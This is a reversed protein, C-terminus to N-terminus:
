QVEVVSNLSGLGNPTWDMCDPDVCWRDDIIFKYEYKGPTLLVSTSYSGNRKRLRNKTPDWNNFTGAICVKERAEAELQFKVRRRTQKDGAQSATKAKSACNSVNKRAPKESTKGRGASKSKQAATKKQM